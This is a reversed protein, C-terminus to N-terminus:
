DKVNQEFDDGLTKDNNMIKLRTTSKEDNLKKVINKTVLGEEKITTTAM